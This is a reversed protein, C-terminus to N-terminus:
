TARICLLSDATNLLQTLYLLVDVQPAGFCDTQPTLAITDTLNQLEHKKRLFRLLDIQPASAKFGVHLARLGFGEM